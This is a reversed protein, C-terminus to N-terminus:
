KGYDALKAMLYVIGESAPLSIVNWSSDPLEPPEIDILFKAANKGPLDVLGAAPFVALKTGIVVFVDAARAAAEAEKYRLVPEGFFVVHPRLQSGKPCKAGVDLRAGDIPVVLKPNCSSQAKRIEGHLHIVNTSGGREHLDDVNQTIITVDFDRELAALGRHAANPTANLVSARRANYFDLVTERSRMWGEHSAVDEIKHGDWLGNAGRFTQIGSEASIGAGTFVVLRPKCASGGANEARCDCKMLKLYVLGDVVAVVQPKLRAGGAADSRLDCSLPGVM